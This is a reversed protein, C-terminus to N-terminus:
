AGTAALIVMPRRTQVSTTRLGALELLHEYEAPSRERGSLLARRCHKLIRICAADDWDHLVHKLLYLDAVPVSEFFDGGVTTVRNQLGLKGAAASASAVVHPCDFLIGHLEPHLQLLAHLMAGEAGGIDAAVKVGETNIVQATEAAVTATLSTMGETFAAAEAANTEFYEFLGM